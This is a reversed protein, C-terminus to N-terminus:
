WTFCSKTMYFEKIERSQGHLFWDLRSKNEEMVSGSSPDHHVPLPVCGTLFQPRIQYLKCNPRLWPVINFAPCLSLGDSMLRLVGRLQRSECDFWTPTDRELLLHISLELLLHSILLCWILGWHSQSHRHLTASPPFIKKEEGLPCSHLTLFSKLNWILKLM